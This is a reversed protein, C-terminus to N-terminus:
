KESKRFNSFFMIGAFFVVRRASEGFFSKMLFAVVRKLM